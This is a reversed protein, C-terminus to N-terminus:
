RSLVKIHFIFSYMYSQNVAFDFEKKQLGEYFNDEYTTYLLNAMISEVFTAKIQSDSMWNKFKRSFSSM